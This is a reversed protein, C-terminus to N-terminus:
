IIQIFDTLLMTLTTSQKILHQRNRLRNNLCHLCLVLLKTHRNGLLRNCDQLRHLCLFELKIYLSLHLELSSCRTILPQMLKSSLKSPQLCQFVQTLLPEKHILITSTSSLSIDVPHASTIYHHQPARQVTDIKSAEM